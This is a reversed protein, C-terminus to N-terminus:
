GIPLRQGVLTTWYACGWAIGRDDFDYAPHHLGASDGNGAFIMAGPCRELLFAFDEGGLSPRITTDVSDSGAVESAAAVAHATEADHNVTVPYRRIYDLRITAGYAEAVGAVVEGLRQEVRDRARETLTRATGLMSVKAPIVNFTDGGHISTISLVAADVPDVSRSVISQISQLLAGSVAVPDIAEEPRAAHGGKGIVDIHIEDAAALM